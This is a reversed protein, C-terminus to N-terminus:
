HCFEYKTVLAINKAVFFIEESIKTLLFVNQQLSESHTFFTNLSLVEWPYTFPSTLTFPFELSIIYLITPLCNRVRLHKALTKARLLKKHISKRTVNQPYHPNVYYQYLISFPVSLFCDPLSNRPDSAVQGSDRIVWSIWGTLSEEFELMHKDHPKNRPDTTMLLDCFGCRWLNKVLSECM